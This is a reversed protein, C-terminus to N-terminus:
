RGEDYVFPEPARSSDVLIETGSNGSFYAYQHLATIVPTTNGIVNNGYTTYVPEDGDWGFYELFVRQDASNHRITNYGSPARASTTGALTVSDGSPTLHNLSAVRIKNDGTVTNHEVLNGFCNGYLLLATFASAGTNYAVYNDKYVAAVTVHDGPAAGVLSGELTFRDGDQSAITRTRGALAGDVFVVDYGVYSPFARRGSITVTQGDVNALPGYEFLGNWPSNGMVDFSIGEESAGSYDNGTVVNDEIVTAAGGGNGRHWMFLISTTGGRITNNTIHNRKGGVVQINGGSGPTGSFRNNDIICDHGRLIMVRFGRFEQTGREFTCNKVVMHRVLTRADGIRIGRDTGFAQLTPGDIVVRHAGAIVSETRWVVGEPAYYYAGPVAQLEGGLRYTGAPFYVHGGGAVAAEAAATIAARDDGAGDAKAGFDRVNFPSGPVSPPAANRISPTAPAAVTAAPSAITPMSASSTGASPTRDPSGGNTCGTVAVAALGAMALPLLLASLITIHPHRM